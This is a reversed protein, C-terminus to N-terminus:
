VAMIAGNKCKTGAAVSGMSKLASHDCMSFSKGDESCVIDGSNCSGGASPAQAVASSSPTSTPSQIPSSSAMPTPVVKASAPASSSSSPSPSPSPSSSSSSSSSSSTSSSSSDGLFPATGKCTYGKGSVHGQVNDGPMPFNVEEDATTTCQGEANINALFIPPLSDFPTSRASLKRPRIDRAHERKSSSGQITVQACNMYMERNGIKNFWTWGLLAEGSPADSPITFDYKKPIPCGGEMSKIVKFTKGKDYSLSMQCSGGGHTASGSLEMEYQSGATYNAVSQFPDNAYGKCPYDSGSSSLPNTYSYDKKDGGNPNLPSRIPFPKSMQMHGCVSSALLAGVVFINKMVM